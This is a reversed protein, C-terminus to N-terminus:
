KLLMFVGVVQILQKSIIKKLMNLEKCIDNVPGSTGGVMSYSHLYFPGLQRDADDGYFFLPYELKKHNIPFGIHVGCECASLTGIRIWAGKEGKSGNPYEPTFHFDCEKWFNPRVIRGCNKCKRHINAIEEPLFPPGKGM